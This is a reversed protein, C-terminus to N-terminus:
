LGTLWRGPAAGGPNRADEPPRYSGSMRLWLGPVIWHPPVTADRWRLLIRARCEEEEGGVRVRRAEFLVSPPEADIAATDLVRGEIAVVIEAPHVPLPWAARDSEAGLAMGVLLLSFWGAAAEARRAGPRSAIWSRPWPSAGLVLSLAGAGIAFARAGNELNAPIPALLSALHGACVPLWLKVPAPVVLRPWTPRM